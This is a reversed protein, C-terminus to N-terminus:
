RLCNAVIDSTLVWRTDMSDMISRHMTEPRIFSIDALAVAWAQADVAAAVGTALSRGMGRDADRCTVVTLGEVRLLDGLANDGPRLVVLVTDVGQLLNCVSLLAMPIGDHVPQLLKHGGSRRGVSAALLIGLVM